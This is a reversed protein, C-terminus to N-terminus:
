IFGTTLLKHAMLPIGVWLKLPSLYQNCLYYCIWCGYSWSWSPDLKLLNTLSQHSTPPKRSTSSLGSRISLGRNEARMVLVSVMVCVFLSPKYEVLFCGIIWTRIKKSQVKIKRTESILKMLYAWFRFIPFCFLKFKPLLLVLPGLRANHMNISYYLFM